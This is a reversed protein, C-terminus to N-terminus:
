LATAKQPRGGSYQSKGVQNAPIVFFSGLYRVPGPRVIEIHRLRELCDARRRELQEVERDAEQVALAAKKEGTEFRARLEM